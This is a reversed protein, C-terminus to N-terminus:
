ASAADLAALVDEPTYKDAWEVGEVDTLEDPTSHQKALKVAVLKKGNAKTQAIEFNAWNKSGTGEANKRVTNSYKGILVLTLDTDEIQPVLVKQIADAKWNKIEERSVGGFVFTYKDNKWLSMKHECRRDEVNDVSVYVKKKGM